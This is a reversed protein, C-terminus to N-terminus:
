GSPAAIRSETSMRLKMWVSGDYRAAAMKRLYLLGHAKGFSM